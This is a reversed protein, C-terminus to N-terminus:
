DGNRVCCVQRQASLAAEIHTVQQKMSSQQQILTDLLARGSKEQINLRLELQRFREEFVAELGEASRTHKQHANNCVPSTFHRGLSACRKRVRLVGDRPRHRRGGCARHRAAARVTLQAVQVSVSVHFSYEAGGAVAPVAVRENFM